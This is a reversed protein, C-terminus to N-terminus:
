LMHYNKLTNVPIELICGPGGTQIHRQTQTLFLYQGRKSQRESASLMKYVRFANTGKKISKDKVEEIDPLSNM